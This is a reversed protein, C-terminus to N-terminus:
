SKSQCAEALWEAFSQSYRTEWNIGGYDAEGTDFYVRPEGTTDAGDFCALDGSEDDKAFPVLPKSGGKDQIVQLCLDAYVPDKAILWWSSNVLCHPADLLSLLASPCVFHAPLRAPEFPKYSTM